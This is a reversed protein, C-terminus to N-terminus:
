SGHGPEEAKEKPTEAVKARLSHPFDKGVARWKGELGLRALASWTADPERAAADSWFNLAATLDPWSLTGATGTGGVWTDRLADVLGERLRGEPLWGEGTVDLGQDGVLRDLAERFSFVQGTDDASGEVLPWEYGAEVEAFRELDWGFSELVSFAAGPLELSLALGLRYGDQYVEAKRSALVERVRDRERKVEDPLEAYAPRAHIRAVRERLAAQVVQSAGAGPQTAAAQEWLDDPVYVSIKPM